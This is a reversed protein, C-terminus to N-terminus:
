PMKYSVANHKYSILRVQPSCEKWMHHAYKSRYFKNLKGELNIISKAQQMVANAKAQAYVRAFTDSLLAIYLNMCVVGSLALYSGCLIQAMLRDVAVLGDWDYSGMLTM